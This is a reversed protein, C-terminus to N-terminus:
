YRCKELLSRLTSIVHILRIFLCGECDDACGDSFPEPGYTKNDKSKHHPEFEKLATIRNTLATIKGGDSRDEDRCDGCTECHDCWMSLDHGCELPQELGECINHLRTIPDGGRRNIEAELEAIRTRLMEEITPEVPSFGGYSLSHNGGATMEIGPTCDEKYHPCASFHKPFVWGCKGCQWPGTKIEAVCAEAKTLKNVVCRAIEDLGHGDLCDEETTGDALINELEINFENEYSANRSKEKSAETRAEDRVRGTEASLRMSHENDRERTLTAIQHLPHAQQETARAELEAIRTDRKAVAFRLDIEVETEPKELEVIRARLQRVTHNIIPGCFNGEPGLLEHTTDNIIVPLPDNTFRGCCCRGVEENVPYLGAACCEAEEENHDDCPKGCECIDKSEASRKVNEIDQALPAVEYGELDDDAM